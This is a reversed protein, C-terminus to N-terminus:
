LTYKNINEKRHDEWWIYITDLWWKQKWNFLRSKIAEWYLEWLEKPTLNTSFITILGKKQRMDLIFKLKTKQPNSINESSGIDDFFLVKVRICLELPFQLISAWTLDIPKLIMNWATIQERFEWDDIWYKNLAGENEPLKQFLQKMIETKWRWPLGYFIINTKFDFNEIFKKRKEEM